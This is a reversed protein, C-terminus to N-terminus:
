MGGASVREAGLIACRADRPFPPQCTTAIRGGGRMATSKASRLAMVVVAVVLLPTRYLLRPRLLHKPVAAPPLLALLGINKRGFRRKARDVHRSETMRWLREEEVAVVVVVAVAVAEGGFACSSSADGVEM